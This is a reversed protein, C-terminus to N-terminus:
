SQGQVVRVWIELDRRYEISITETVTGSLFINVISSSYPNTHSKDFPAM